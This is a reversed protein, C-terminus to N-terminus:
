FASMGKFLAVSNVQVAGTTLLACCDKRETLELCAKTGAPGALNPM